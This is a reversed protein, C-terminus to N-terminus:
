ALARQEEELRYKLVKREGRIVHSRATSEDINMADAITRWGYGRRYWRLATQQKETCIKQALAWDAESLM